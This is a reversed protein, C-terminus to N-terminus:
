SKRHNRSIQGAEQEQHVWSPDALGRKVEERTKRRVPRLRQREPSGPSGSRQEMAAMARVDVTAEFEWFQWIFMVIIESIERLIATIHLSSIIHSTIDIYLSTILIYDPYKWTWQWCPIETWVNRKSMGSWFEVMNLRYAKKNSKPNLNRIIKTECSLTRRGVSKKWTRNKPYSLLSAGITETSKQCIRGSYGFGQMEICTEWKREMETKREHDQCMKTLQRQSWTVSGVAVCHQSSTAADMKSHAQYLYYCNISNSWSCSEFFYVEFTKLQHKCPDSCLHLRQSTVKQPGKGADSCHFLWLPCLDWWRRAMGLVSRIPLRHKTHNLWWGSHQLWSLRLCFLGLSLLM